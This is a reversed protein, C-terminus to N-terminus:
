KETSVERQLVGSMSFCKLGEDFDGPVGFMPEDKVAIEGTSGVLVFSCNFTMTGIIVGGGPSGCGTDFTCSFVGSAM